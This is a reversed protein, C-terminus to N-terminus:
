KEDVLWKYDRFFRQFDKEEGSTALWDNFENFMEQWWIYKDNFEDNYQDPETELFLHAIEVVTM